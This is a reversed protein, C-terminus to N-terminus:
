VPVVLTHRVRWRLGSGAAEAGAPELKMAAAAQGAPPLSRWLFDRTNGADGAIFLQSTLEGFSAHRLKVHIHPTRGPYAVPKITKFALTGDAGSRAAGFGQFGEDLQAPAANVSPHRYSALVDCQWIEVEAQDILRGNADSVRLDLALYEGRATLTQGGRRVQTLDFDWDESKKRWAASPYFPGDTMAPLVSRGQAWAPLGLTAAAGAFLLTRRQPHPSM